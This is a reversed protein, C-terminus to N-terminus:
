LAGRASGLDAVAKQQAAKMADRASLQQTAVQQVAWNIAEGALPFERVTRYAMYNDGQAPRELVRLYLAGLDQGNVTNIERYAASEIVSRRCITAHRHERVIRTLMEPSLAWKIFEWAARKNKAHRPIGLGQSNSAPCDNVPGVPMATILATERVKSQESMLMPTVWSSSHIFINSRGTLLAQRASGESYSLVDAPACALLKAYYEVARVAAESDLTPTTDGPPDKFVNGGFGQLYPILCWHHLQWSVFGSVGETGNLATVVQLLEDFTKPVALGERQMLDMRSLGMVMAGGEWAYGYTGGAADRYPLQAGDIFDGPNWDQPTVNRDQTYEDLNSLLNAAVWRAALFFTVNIFDPVDGDSSLAQAINKNYAALASLRLDVKIGTQQEFEPIYGQLITMFEHQYAAGRLTIGAFPKAGALLPMPFHTAAAVLTSAGAKLLQRRNMAKMIRTGGRIAMSWPM